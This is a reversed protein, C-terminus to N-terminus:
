AGDDEFSSSSDSDEYALLSSLGGGSASPPPEGAGAASAGGDRVCGAEAEDTEPARAGKAEGERARKKKSRVTLRVAGTVGLVPKGTAAPTPAARRQPPRSSSGFVTARLLAEDEERLEEPDAAEAGGEAAARSRENEEIRQLILAPDAKANAIELRRNRQQLDHLGDLIEMEMKTDMTKTELAKIADKAEEAKEEDAQEQLEKKERWLEFNRTGGFDMEYDHNKPDTKFAIRNTCTGCKILFRYKKIGLYTDGVVDEKQANFKRGQYLFDGCSSCRISFPLMLRVETRNLKPKKSKPVRQPDFDPDHYYQIAKREGM